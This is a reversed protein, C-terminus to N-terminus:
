YLTSELWDGAFASQFSQIKAMLRSIKYSELWDGAFASQFLFGIVFWLGIISRELWDGAFASQFVRFMLAEQELQSKGVLRWRFRISVVGILKGLQSQTYSEM